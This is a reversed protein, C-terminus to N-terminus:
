RAPRRGGPEANFRVSIRDAKAKDRCALVVDAGRAALIRATELGIGGTAGTVVVTRGHQDPVDAATWRSQSDPTTMLAERNIQTISLIQHINLYVM